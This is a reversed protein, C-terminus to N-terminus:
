APPKRAWVLDYHVQWTQTIVDVMGLRQLAQELRGRKSMRGPFFRADAGVRNSILVLGGPKLVRIIEALVMMPHPMFEMAELCTVADFSHDIFGLNAADQRLLAVRQRHEQLPARGETLMPVSRDIGVVTGRFDPERLLALVMRGTGTAVDLVRPCPVSALAETVPLGLYRTENVFHLNKIADYRDATWDYLLTVVRSGLYAGETTILLWHLIGGGLLAFAVILWVWLM